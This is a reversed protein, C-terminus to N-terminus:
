LSIQTIEDHQVTISARMPLKNILAEEIKNEECNLFTAIKNLSIRYAPYAEGDGIIPSLSNEEMNFAMINETLKLQSPAEVTEVETRGTTSVSKENNYTQVVVDTIKLHQGIGVEKEAFERWLSVKCKGTGNKLTKSKVKVDRGRVSVTRAIEEAVVQGRVSLMSTVPSKDIEKLTVEASAPPNAMVQAASEIESPVTIPGIRSVRSKSTITISNDAKIIKNFLMASKGQEIDKVKTLDYLTCKAAMTTDAIGLILYKKDEGDANVYEKQRSIACIKVSIPPMYPGERKM